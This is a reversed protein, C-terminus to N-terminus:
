RLSTSRPHSLTASHTFTMSGMASRRTCGGSFALEQFLSLVCLGAVVCAGDCWSCTTSCGGALASNAAWARAFNQFVIVELCGYQSTCCGIHLRWPWLMLMFTHTDTCAFPRARLSISYPSGAYRTRAPRLRSPLPAAAQRPASSAGVDARRRCAMSLRTLEGIWWPLVTDHASWASQPVDIM